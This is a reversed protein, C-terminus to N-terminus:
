TVIQAPPIRGPGKKLGVEFVLGSLSLNELSTVGADEYIRVRIASCKQISPRVRARAPSISTVTLGTETEPSDYDGSRVYDLDVNYQSNNPKAGQIVISKIRQYGLIGAAHFWSTRLDIPIGVDGTSTQDTYALSDGVRREVLLAGQALLVQADEDGRGGWSIGDVLESLRADTSTPVINSTTWRRYFYNYHLLRPHTTVGGEGDDEAEGNVVLTILHRDKLLLAARVNGGLRVDDEIEAGASAYDLQRGRDLIYYGKASQFFIGPPALVLSRPEICGTGEHLVEVQLTLLGGGADQAVMGYISTATFIIMANNMPMMATIQGVEGIRFFQDSGFVPGAYAASGQAGLDPGIEDSYYIVAPDVASVGWIRNQWTALVSMPPPTQPLPIELVTTGPSFQYPGSDRLALEVDSVGDLVDVYPVTPDNLPTDQVRYPPRDAGFVRYFTTENNLTRYVELQINTAQPYREISDKLSLSLTKHRTAITQNSGTLTIEAINSPGSRHIQGAADTWSWCSYVLYTGLATVDGETNGGIFNIEPPWMFGLETVMEGDYSYLTGGGFITARGAEIPLCMPRINPRRENTLPLTYSDNRPRQWGEEMYVVIGNIGCLEPQFAQGDQSAIENFVHTTKIRAYFGAAITRTKAEYGSSPPLAVNSIHNMRKSPGTQHVTASFAEADPMWGSTRADAFGLGEVTCIPRPRLTLSDSSDWLPYDFCLVLYKAQTWDEAEVTSRYSALAYVEPAGTTSTGNLYMWPRSQLSMHHVFHEEGQRTADNSNIARFAIGHSWRLPALVANHHDELQVETVLAVTNAAVRCHGVQVWAGLIENFSLVPSTVNGGTTVDMRLSQLTLADGGTGEYTLVVDNDSRHAYVALVRIPDESVLTTWDFDVWDFDTFLQVTIETATHRAVVFDTASGIVPCVDYLGDPHVGVSGRANWTTASFAAMDMTARYLSWIRWGAEGVTQIDSAQLWHVVFTEGVAIIKPNDLPIGNTDDIETQTAQAVVNHFVLVPTGDAQIRHCVAEIAAAPQNLYTYCRYHVGDVELSAVDPMEHAAFLRTLSSLPM